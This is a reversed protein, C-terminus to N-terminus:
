NKTPRWTDDFGWSLWELYQKALIEALEVINIAQDYTIPEGHAAMNCISLVKTTLALQSETIAGVDFLKRILRAGSDRTTLPVKFGIALNRALIDIEIRLGALAINPDQAALQRYYSFDLGSPSPRLGLTIMRANAETLPIVPRKNKKESESLERAKESLEQADEIEIDIDNGWIKAHRVRKLLNIIAKRFLLGLGFIAIPWILVRLYELIIKAIEMICDRVPGGSQICCTQSFHGHL